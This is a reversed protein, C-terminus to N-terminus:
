IMLSIILDRIQAELKKGDQKGVKGLEEDM